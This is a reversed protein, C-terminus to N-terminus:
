QRQRIWCGREPLRKKSKRIFAISSDLDASKASSPRNLVILEVSLCNLFEQDARAASHQGLRFHFEGIVKQWGPYHGPIYERLFQPWALSGRRRAKGARKRL